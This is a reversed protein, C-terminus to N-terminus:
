AASEGPLIPDLLDPRRALEVLTRVGFGTAGKPSTPQDKDAWATGAIDLHAWPIEEPVFQKLFIGGIITGASRDGVNKFDAVDSKISEFYFDYLPLPWFREGVELGLKQLADSLEGRNSLVGAVQKGLAIICAGTLTALDIMVAPKYRLAYTLADCLVMRGEADTTIVEITLGSLSKIVDGPKYAKGDPMNETCPLIGIVRQRLSLRGISEFAGLVAAAGAMDQKMAELNASPKISIGGTDFTIGKGVYVFPPSNELGAPCHELLIMCAPESSGQAVAAFAGMGLTQATEFELVELKFGYTASLQQATKALYAPTVRNSPSVVLDRALCIGSAIAAAIRPIAETAEDPRDETCLLFQEPFPTAEVDRTKLEDFRYLSTDAVVLAEELIRRRDGPLDRLADLSLALTTVRLDRAKRMGAAMASRFKDLDFKERPGLGVLLVRPFPSQAPEYHIVIEQPKGQFDKWALSDTLRSGTAELWKKLGPLPTPANEFSFFLLADGQWRDLPAVQWEFQM